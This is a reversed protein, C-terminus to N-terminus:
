RFAPGVAWATLAHRVGRTVETVEHPVFSPFAIACGRARPVALHDPPDYIRLEGGEYDDPASLQVSIGLKRERGGPGALDVHWAHHGGVAYRQLKLPSELERLVFGYTARERLFQALRAYVWEHDPGLPLLKWDARKNGTATKGGRGDSVLAPTWEGPADFLRRCEDDSLVAHEFVAGFLSSVVHVLYVVPRAAM